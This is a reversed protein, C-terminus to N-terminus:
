YLCSVQDCNNHFVDIQSIVSIGYNRGVKVNGISIQDPEQM